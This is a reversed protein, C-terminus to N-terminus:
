VSRFEELFVCVWVCGRVHRCVCVESDRARTLITIRLFITCDCKVSRRSEFSVINIKQNSLVIQFDLLKDTQLLLLTPCRKLVERYAVMVLTVIKEPQRLRQTKRNPVARKPGKICLGCLWLKFLFAVFMREYRQSIERVCLGFLQIAIGMVLCRWGVCVFLAVAWWCSSWPQESMPHM